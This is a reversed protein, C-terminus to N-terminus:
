VDSQARSRARSASGGPSRRQDQGHGHRATAGITMRRTRKGKRPRGSGAWTESRYRDELAGPGFRRPASSKGVPGPPYPVERPAHSRELVLGPGVLDQPRVAQDPARRFRPESELVLRD